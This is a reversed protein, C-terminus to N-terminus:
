KQGFEKRLWRLYEGREEATLESLLARIEKLERWRDPATDNTAQATTTTTKM